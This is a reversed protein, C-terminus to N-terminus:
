IYLIPIGVRKAYNVTYATGGFVRTCYAVCVGCNDVLYRNRRLTCGCLYEKQLYVVRDAQELATHYCRVAEEDWGREQNEYPLVLILRIHPYLKKLELVVGAALLDFGMAGGSEFYQIGQEMLKQLVIYLRRQVEKRENQSLTRHGILCCTRDRKSMKM